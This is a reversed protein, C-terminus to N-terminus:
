ESSPPVTSAVTPVSPGSDAGLGVRCQHGVLDSAFGFARQGRELAPRSRNMVDFGDTAQALQARGEDIAGVTVALQARIRDPFHERSAVISGKLLRLTEDLHPREQSWPVTGGREDFAFGFVPVNGQYYNAAAHMLAVYPCASASIPIPQLHKREGIHSLSESFQSLAMAILIVPTAIVM